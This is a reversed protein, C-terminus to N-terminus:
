GSTFFTFRCFLGEALDEYSFTNQFYATFKCFFVWALTRNWYLKRAVKNFGCKPMPTRRYIQKINESCRKELVCRFPQKQLLLIHITTRDPKKKIALRYIVKRTKSQWTRSQSKWQSCNHSRQSDKILLPIRSWLSYQDYQYM